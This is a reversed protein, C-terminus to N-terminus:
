LKRAALFGAWTKEGHLIGFDCFFKRYEIGRLPYTTYGTTEVVPCSGWKGLGSPVVNDM